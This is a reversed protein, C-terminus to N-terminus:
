STSWKRKMFIAVEGDVTDTNTYLSLDIAEIEFGVARYFSIAPVNTSQTELGVCRFGSQRANETIAEMLQRGIGKRRYAEDVHFEWVWLTRNWRRPESLAYGVLHDGDYAGMSYGAALFKQYRGQEEEDPSDWRKIYPTEFPTLDMTVVVQEPSEAKHVVYRSTSTYSGGITALQEPSFCTLPRIEVRAASLKTNSMEIAVDL